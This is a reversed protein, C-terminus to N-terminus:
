VRGAEKALDELQVLWDMLVDLTVAQGQAERYLAVKALSHAPLARYGGRTGCLYGQATRRPVRLGEMLDETTLKDQDM